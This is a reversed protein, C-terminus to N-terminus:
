RTSPGSLVVQGAIEDETKRDAQALAERETAEVREMLTEMGRVRVRVKVVSQRAVEVARACEVRQDSAREAKKRQTALWAEQASWDSASAPGKALSERALLAAKAEAEAENLKARAAQEKERARALAAAEKDLERQRLEALRAFRRTREGSM